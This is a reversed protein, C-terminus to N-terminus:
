GSLLQERREIMVRIQDAVAEDAAIRADIEDPFASYFNVAMRVQDAGLGAEEAANILRREGRGPARRVARVIEWVDPGSAM